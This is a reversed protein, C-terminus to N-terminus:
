GVSIRAEKLKEEIQSNINEDSLQDMVEQSIRKDITETVRNMREVITKLTTRMQPFFDAMVELVAAKLALLSNGDIREAFDMENEIPVLSRNLESYKLEARAHQQKQVVVPTSANFKEFDEQLLIWAIGFCVQANIL